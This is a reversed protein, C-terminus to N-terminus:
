FINVEDLKLNTFMENIIQFYSEYYDENENILSKSSGNRAKRRVIQETLVILILLFNRVIFNKMKDEVTKGDKNFDYGVIANISNIM